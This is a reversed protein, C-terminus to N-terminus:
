LFFLTSEGAIFCNRASSFSGAGVRGSSQGGAPAAQNMECRMASVSRSLIAGLGGPPRKKAQGGHASLANAGPTSKFSEVANSARVSGPAHDQGVDVDEDLGVTFVRHIM